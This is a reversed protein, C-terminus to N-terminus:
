VLKIKADKLRIYGEKVIMLDPSELFFYLVWELLNYISTRIPKWM